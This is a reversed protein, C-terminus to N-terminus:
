NVLLPDDDPADGEGTGDGVPTKDANAADVYPLLTAVAERLDDLSTVIDDFDQQTPPYVAGDKGISLPSKGQILGHDVVMVIFLAVLLAVGGREVRLLVASGLAVDPLTKPVSASMALAAAVLGLLTAIRVGWASLTLLQSRVAGNRASENDVEAALGGVEAIAGV